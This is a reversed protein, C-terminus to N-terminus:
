QEEPEAPKEPKEKEPQEPDDPNEKDPDKKDPPEGPQLWMAHTLPTLPECPPCFAVRGSSAVPRQIVAQARAGCGARQRVKQRKEDAEEEDNPVEPDGPMPQPLQPKLPKFEPFIDPRRSPTAKM